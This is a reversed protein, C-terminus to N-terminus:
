KKDSKNAPINIINVEPPCFFRMGLIAGTGRTVFIQKGNEFHYHGAPASSRFSIYKDTFPIGLQGGHTHGSLLLDWKYKRLNWRCEPDHALLIVPPTETSDASLCTDPMEDGENYDGLGVIRIMTGTPTQWDVSQNRLLTVGAAQYVREVQEQKEYDHNGLIVFTPAITNLQRFADVAWKTRKFRDDAYVLDGGFFIIDPKEEKLLEVVQILKGESNHIDSFFAIKLPGAQNLSNATISCTNRELKSAGWLGFHVASCYCLVLSLAAVSYRRKNRKIHRAIRSILAPKKM